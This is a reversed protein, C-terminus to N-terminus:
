TRCASDRGYKDEPMTSFEYRLGANLSLRPSVQVDDQLYLGVLTFRWYRDFQADPTLGIFNNPAARLFANLNPFGFIGLSFTPNVMNAQYREVLLGAKLLHRGRTHIADNQLSFVNQV